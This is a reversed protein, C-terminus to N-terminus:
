IVNRKKGVMEFSDVATQLDNKDHLATITVRLRAKGKMVTPYRIPQVFVGNRSLENSFELALKEDGIMVPMIQSTSRAISFGLDKLKKYFFAVNRFLMGQLNGNQAVPVAALAAACLHEPLASTYIFQRSKNVLLERALKSCAVYGGFCGLGKSLSSVNVDIMENVDFYAPVGSYSGPSGFIFDGHADDVIIIANYEKVLRCIQDLVSFDGDMSFIGETVVIRNSTTSRLLGNLDEIDNHRFVKITARSLRCADIISAHNLEDSFIATDKNALATIVGLNAMYGSPYILSAETHRHKAIQEELELLKPSNGAVLRSSCQSMHDLTARAEEIVQPNRSLGLYDNSCLHIKEVGDVLVKAGYVEVTQPKRYLNNKKLEDLELEISDRTSVM